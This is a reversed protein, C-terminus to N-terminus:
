PNYWRFYIPTKIDSTGQFLTKMRWYKQFSEHNKWYKISEALTKRTLGM